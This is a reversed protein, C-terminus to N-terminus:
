KEKKITGFGRSVSKGIGIYDPLIFNTIFSGEFVMIKTDKLQSKKPRVKVEAKIESPVQYNLTKSISLLNAILTKRLLLHQNERYISYFKRYNKQNLAFWPTIFKYAYYKESLGFEESKVTINREYVNYINDGLRIKDYQDYIEKLVEAGENIGLIAPKKDITKYQVLPYKYLFKNTDTHHHLLIYETFKTAFFGRLQSPTEKITKDSEITLTFIKLKM